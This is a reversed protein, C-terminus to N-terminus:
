IRRGLLVMLGAAAGADMATFFQRVLSGTSAADLQAVIALAVLPAYVVLALLFWGRRAGLALATGWGALAVAGALPVVPWIQALIAVGVTALLLLPALPYAALQRDHSPM